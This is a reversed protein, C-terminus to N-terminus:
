SGDVAVPSYAPPRKQGTATMGVDVVRTDMMVDRVAVEGTILLVVERRGRGNSEDVFCHVITKEAAHSM